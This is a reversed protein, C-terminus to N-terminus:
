NFLLGISSICVGERVSIVELRSSHRFSIISAFSIPRVMSSTLSNKFRFYFTLLLYDGSAAKETINSNGLLVDKNRFVISKAILEAEICGTSGIEGQRM